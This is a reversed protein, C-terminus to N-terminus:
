KAAELTLLKRKREFGWRYGGSGGDERV